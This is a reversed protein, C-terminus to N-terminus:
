RSTQQIRLKVCLEGDLNEAANRLTQGRQVVKMTWRKTTGSSTVTIVYDGIVEPSPPWHLTVFMILIRITITPSKLPHFFVSQIEAWQALGGVATM